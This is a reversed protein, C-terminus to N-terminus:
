SSEEGRLEQLAAQARGASVVNGKREYLRLAEEVVPVADEARGALRLVEALAMLTAGHRDLWDTKSVLQVAERAIREADRHQGRRAMVGARVQRLWVQPELDDPSATDEAIDAFRMAEDYQETAFLARALGAARSALWGSSGTRALIEYGNRVEPEAALPNGALFEIEAGTLSIVSALAVTAGLEEFIERARALLARGEDFRGLMAELHAKSALVEAEVHRNGAARAMVQDLQRLAERVQTPGEEISWCLRILADGSKWHLGLAEAYAIGRELAEAALAMQGLWQQFLGLTLWADALAAEDGLEELDLLLRKLDEVSEGFRADPDTLMLFRRQRVQMRALLAPQGEARPWELGEGLVAQAEKVRGVALLADFLEPLLEARRPEGEPLLEEARSFLNAASGMDGRSVASRGGERLAVGARVAIATALEDVPGLEIRYRYAQELHYGVMEEYEPLRGRAVEELWSAFSEHLESRIRKPISDYAADRVLIHSFRFADQGAFPTASEPRILERRLLAQLATGVGGRVEAPALATVAGWFFVKGVVSARQIVAREEGDLRDLRASLLAHITGPVEVRSMDGIPEWRGDTRVLRGDDILMRLMEEVFLPNGEAAESIRSAVDTPVGAHGLLNDILRASDEKSLPSLTVVSGVAGWGPRGDRLEPRATCLLLISRDRSFGALYEVLDLFAPQAWHIDEVVLILPRERALAELFRRIAWFTEQIEGAATRLGIAAAVRDRAIASEEGEGLVAGIRAVADAPSDDVSIELSSRVAEAVPWFTIGEGYPLCRTTLTRGGGGVQALFEGVLRTKGLGADGLITLLECRREEISRHHAERLMSLEEQRGVLPSDLRRAFPPAGPIIELLRYAQVEDGKGKLALTSLPEVKVADHALRLTEAGLLVEGAGAVQELRAAVNVADGVVFSQASSPDGAMVQGTNVGIRLALTPQAEHVLQDNLEHLSARMEAAARIARLADDEHLTPVGFVGVVADGIFKEVSGGHRELVAKMRQFYRDMLSRLMEPDLREGLETSGVVDAFVV